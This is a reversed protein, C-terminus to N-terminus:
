QIDFVEEHSMNNMTCLTLVQTVVGLVVFTLFSIRVAMYKFLWWFANLQGLWKVSRAGVIGPAIVRVPYGHDRSLPEGNMEYALIVDGKRDM